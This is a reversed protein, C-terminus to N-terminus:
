GGIVRYHIDPYLAVFLKSKNIWDRTKFGKVEDVCILPNDWDMEATYSNRGTPTRKVIPRKFTFDPRYVGVKKGEVILDYSKEHQMDRVTGKNVECQLAWCHMAEAKSPHRHKLKCYVAVAGYKHTNQRKHGVLKELDKKNM